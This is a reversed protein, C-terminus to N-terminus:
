SWSHKLNQNEISPQEITTSPKSNALSMFPSTDMLAPIQAYYDHYFRENSDNNKRHNAFRSHEALSQHNYNFCQHRTSPSRSHQFYTRELEMRPPTKLLPEKKKRRREDFDHHTNHEDVRTEISACFLFKM